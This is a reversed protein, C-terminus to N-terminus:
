PLTGNVQGLGAFAQRFVARLHEDDTDSTASGAEHNIM